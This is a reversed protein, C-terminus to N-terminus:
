RGLTEIIVDASESGSFNQQGTVLNGDGAEPGPVQLPERQRRAPGIRAGAGTHLGASWSASGARRLFRGAM